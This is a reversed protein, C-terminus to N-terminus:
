IDDPYRYIWTSMIYKNEKLPPNGRHTHTWGAPWLLLRNRKPRIRRSQYLFETEGGDEIDNLYLQVVVHRGSHITGMNECHWSHFGGGPKIRKMKLQGCYMKYQALFNYKETYIPWIEQWIMNFFDRSFWDPATHITRPSNFFTEDMDRSMKNGDRASPQILNTANLKEFYDIVEDIYNEPFYNDFVGIFDEFAYLKMDNGKCVCIKM